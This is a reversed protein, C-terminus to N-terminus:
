SLKKMLELTEKLRAVLTKGTLRPFRGDVQLYGGNRMLMLRQDPIEVSSIGAHAARVRIENVMLLNEVPEPVRGFRDRWDRRLGNLEKVAAAEALNRYGLIRQVPETM